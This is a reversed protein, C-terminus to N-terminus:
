HTANYAELKTRPHEFGLAESDLIRSSADRLAMCVQRAEQEPMDCGYNLIIDLISQEVDHRFQVRARVDRPCHHFQIIADELTM